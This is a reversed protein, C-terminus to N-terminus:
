LVPTSTYYVKNCDNYRLYIKNYGGIKYLSNGHLTLCWYYAGYKKNYGPDCEDKRVILFIAKYDYRVIDGTHFEM